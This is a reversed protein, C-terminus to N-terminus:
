YSAPDAFHLQKTKKERIAISAPPGVCGSLLNISTGYKSFEESLKTGVEESQPFGDFRALQATCVVSHFLQPLYFSKFCTM